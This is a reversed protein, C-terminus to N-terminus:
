STCCLLSAASAAAQRVKDMDKMETVWGDYRLQVTIVAVGVLKYINDFQPLPLPSTQAHWCGDLFPPPQTCWSCKLVTLGHCALMFTVPRGGARKQRWQRVVFLRASQEVAVMLVM